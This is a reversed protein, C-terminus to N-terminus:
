DGVATRVTVPIDCEGNTSHTASVPRIWANVDDVHWRPPKTNRHPIVNFTGSTKWEYLTKRTVGIKRAVASFTLLIDSM